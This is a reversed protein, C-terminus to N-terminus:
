LFNFSKPPVEMSCSRDWLFSLVGELVIGGVCVLALDISFIM